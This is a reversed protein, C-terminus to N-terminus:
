RPSEADEGESGPSTTEAHEHGGPQKGKGKKPTAKWIVYFVIALTIFLMYKDVQRVVDAVPEGFRFGLYLYFGKALLTFVLVYAGTLYWRVREVGMLALIITTPLPSFPIFCAFLSVGPNRRIFGELRRFWRPTDRPFLMLLVKDGWRWGMLYFVPAILNAVVTAAALWPLWSSGHLAANSGIMILGTSSGTLATYLETHNVLLHPKFPLLALSYLGFLTCLAVLLYDKRDMRSIFEEMAANRSAQAGEASRADGEESHDDAIDGRASSRENAPTPDNAHTPENSDVPDTAPM